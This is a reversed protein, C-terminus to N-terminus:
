RVALYVTRSTGYKVSCLVNKGIFFQRWFEPARISSILTFIDLTRNLIGMLRLFPWINSAAPFRDSDPLMPNMQRRCHVSAVFMLKLSECARLCQREGVGGDCVWFM